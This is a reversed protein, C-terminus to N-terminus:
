QFMNCVHNWDTLFMEEQSYGCVLLDFGNKAVKTKMLRSYFCLACCKLIVQEVKRFEYMDKFSTYKQPYAHISEETQEINKKEESM